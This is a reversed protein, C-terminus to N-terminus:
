TAYPCADAHPTGPKAGCAECPKKGKVRERLEDTRRQTQEKVFGSIDQASDLYESPENIEGTEFRNDLEIAARFQPSLAVLKSTRKVITKKAMEGWWKFWPTDANKAESVARVREIEKRNMTDWVTVGGQMHFIAYAHKIKTDDARDDADIDPEHIIENRTGRYVKFKDGDIVTAAQVGLVTGSRLALTVLGRVMPTLAAKGKRPVLAAEGAPGGVLLGLSAAQMVGQVISMKDCKQLAPTMSIQLLAARILTDAKIPGQIAKQISAEARELIKQIPANQEFLVM